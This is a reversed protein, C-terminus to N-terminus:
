HIMETFAKERHSIKKKERERGGGWGGLEPQDEKRM